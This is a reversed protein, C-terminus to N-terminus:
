LPQPVESVYESLDARVEGAVIPLCDPAVAEVFEDGRARAREIFDAIRPANGRLSDHVVVVSWDQRAVQALATDVWGEPDRWDEPVANWLVCTYRAAILHDILAPSFLCRDLRGGRGFPRFMPPVSLYEHLLRSTREIEDAVAHPDPNEGFPLAHSWTHNGIGHGDQRIRDLLEMRGPKAAQQGVIFFQATVSRERLVDLVQPTVEPHPGNDITLTIRAM